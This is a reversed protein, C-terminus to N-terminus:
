YAGERTLVVRVTRALIHLDLWVSWNRVYYDDLRVREEYSTNSRGSVQWLGSIGPRVSTYLSFEPGYKVIEESVIPRPGILSMEGRFVNWIQPLEDLSTTRLFRGIPTVRPDRKLKREQSWEERLRTDSDLWRQLVADADRRMTRFKWARFPAGNLGIRVQSYFVPGPSSLRILIGAALFFPAFLVLGASSSAVDIARKVLQPTRFLLRHRFEVGLLGGMDITTVELSALNILDSIVVVRQFSSAYERTVRAATRAPFEPLAIIAYKVSRSRGLASAFSIDGLIRTDHPQPDAESATALLVGLPRLGLGANRVLADYVATGSARSGIIIVREGWWSQRALFHRLIMRGATVGFLSAAWAGLLVARSYDEADRMFFTATAVILFSLTTGHFIKRLETVPHLGPGPYLGLLAYVALFLVTLFALNFYFALTFQGGLAYRVLVVAASCALIALADTVVFPAASALPLPSRRGTALPMRIDQAPASM